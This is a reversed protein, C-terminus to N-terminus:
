KSMEAGSALYTFLDLLYRLQCARKGCSKFMLLLRRGLMSKEPNPSPAARKGKIKPWISKM